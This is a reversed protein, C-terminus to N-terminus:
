ELLDLPGGADEERGPLIEPMPRHVARRHRRELVEIRAIVAADDGVRRDRGPLPVVSEEVPHQARRARRELARRDREDPAAVDPHVDDPAQALASRRDEGALRPPLPALLELRDPDAGPRRVRLGREERLRHVREQAAFARRETTQPLSFRAIGSGV